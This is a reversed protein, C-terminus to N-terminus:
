SLASLNNDSMIKKIKKKLNFKKNEDKSDKLESLLGILYEINESLDDEYEVTIKVNKGEFNHKFSYLEKFSNFEFKKTISDYKTISLEDSNEDYDEPLIECFMKDLVGMRGYDDRRINFWSSQSKLESADALQYVNGETYNNYRRVLCKIYM